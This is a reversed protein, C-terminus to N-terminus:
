VLIEKEQKLLEQKIEKLGVVFILGKIENITKM